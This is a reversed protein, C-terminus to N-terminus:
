PNELGGEGLFEHNGSKASCYGIFIYEGDMGDFIITLGEEQAIKDNFASDNLFNEFTEYFSKGTKREWEKGWIYPLKIGYILYQNVQTSM